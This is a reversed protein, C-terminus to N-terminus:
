RFSIALLHSVIYYAPLVKLYFTFKYPIRNREKNKVHVLNVNAMLVSQKPDKLSPAKILSVDRFYLAKNSRKNSASKILAG